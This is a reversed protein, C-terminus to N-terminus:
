SAGPTAKSNASAPTTTRIQRELFEASGRLEEVHSNTSTRLWTLGWGREELKQRVKRTSAWEAQSEEEAAVKRSEAKELNRSAVSLEEQLEFAVQEECTVESRLPSLTLSRFSVLRRSVEALDGQAAEREARATQAEAHFSQLAEKYEDVARRERLAEAELHAAVGVAPTPAGSRAADTASTAAELRAQSRARTAELLRELAAVETRAQLLQGRLATASRTAAFNLGPARLADSAAFTGASFADM